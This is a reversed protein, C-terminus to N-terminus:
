VGNFWHQHTKAYDLNNTEYTIRVTKDEFIDPTSHFKILVYGDSDERISWLIAKYVGDDGSFVHPLDQGVTLLTDCKRSTITSYPYELSSRRTRPGFYAFRESDKGPGELVSDFGLFWLGETQEGQYVDSRDYGGLALETIAEIDDPAIVKRFNRDIEDLLKRDEEQVVDGDESFSIIEELREDRLVRRLIEVATRNQVM